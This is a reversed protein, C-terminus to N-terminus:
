THRVHGGAPRCCTGAPATDEVAIDVTPHTTMSLAYDTGAIGSLDFAAVLNAQTAALNAGVIFINGNVDTLTAQFTYTKTDVTMTDGDTPLTDLTLTGQSAGLASEAATTGSVTFLPVGTGPDTHVALSFPAIDQDTDVLDDVTVTYTTTAGLTEFEPTFVEVTPNTDDNTITAAAPVATVLSLSLVMVLAIAGAM